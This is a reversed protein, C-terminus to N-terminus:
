RIMTEFVNIELAGTTTFDVRNVAKLAEEFEDDMDMIILSDLSDVLTAAWGSFDNRFKGTIPALEDQLWAHRKYGKWSRKFVKKVAKRRKELERRRGWSPQTFQYQIRPITKAPTTPLSILTEVPHSDPRKRWHIGANENPEAQEKTLLQAPEFTGDTDPLFSNVLLYVLGLFLVAPIIFVKRICFM